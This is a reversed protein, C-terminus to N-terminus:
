RRYCLLDEYGRDGATCLEQVFRKAIPTLKWNKRCVLITDYPYSVDSIPLPRINDYFPIKEHVRNSYIGIFYSESEQLVQEYSGSDSIRLVGTSPFLSHQDKHFVDAGWWDDEKEYALRLYQDLEQQRVSTREADYLPNKRGVMCVCEDTWLLYHELENENLVRFVIDRRQTPTVIIGLESNKQIVDRCVAGPTKKALRSSSQGGAVSGCCRLFVTDMYKLFQSSVELKNGDGPATERLLEDYLELIKQSTAVFQKGFDTMEIGNHSRKLIPQGLEQEAAHISASLASQSMYLKQAAKNISESNSVEIIQRMQRIKM